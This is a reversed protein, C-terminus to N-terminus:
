LRLGRKLRHGQSQLQRLTEWNYRGDRIACAMYSAGASGSPAVRFKASHLVESFDAFRRSLEAARCLHGLEEGNFVVCASNDIYFVESLRGDESFRFSLSIHEDKLRFLFGRVTQAYELISDLLGKLGEKRRMRLEMNRIFLNQLVKLTPKGEIDSAKVPKGVRKGAQTARYLLGGNAFMESTESGRDAMVNYQSLVLNLEALSTVRYRSVVETVVYSIGCRLECKGYEVPAPCGVTSVKPVNCAYQLGYSKELARAAKFSKGLCKFYIEINKGARNINTTVIHIHPHWTDAHRYVLYPQGGLGICELYDRAILNLKRDDLEDAPSFSLSIHMANNMTRWNREALDTLRALKERMTLDGPEKGYRGAGILVAVGEVVKSENYTLIQRLSKGGRFKAVM